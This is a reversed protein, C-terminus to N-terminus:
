VGFFLLLFGGGYLLLVLLSEFGINGIGMRERRLLGLLLVGSMLM